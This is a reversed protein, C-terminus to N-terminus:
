AVDPWTEELAFGCGSLFRTLAPLGEFAVIADFDKCSRTQRELLADVGWGGDV